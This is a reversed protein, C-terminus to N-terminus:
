GGHYDEEGGGIPLKVTFTSGKGVESQAEITGGHGEVLTKVIALGLGIGKAKTTFLPEFLRELTEQPIGGGTDSFSVSVWEPSASDSKVVLRGGKPMAQIANLIINGFIQGLQDPDALIPGLTGDLQSLVKVNEPISPRSLAERVVDNIDVQRRTPPKPRAFDLLSGIIRESTAVEKELIEMSEKVKPEPKELVMNLFYTANKIAGLPNRLEHGVGGALQGIVALKEQRVLQEQAERLDKTRQEVMEELRESYEKLKEEARKQEAYLKANAIAGAIQSGISEALEVEAETYTNQKVSRMHLVGIVNDKSILPVAILSRFGAQFTPLLRPLRTVVEEIDETQILLNSRTRMVEETLTGALPVVDGSKRGPVDHGAIYATSVTGKEPYIINIAIRDFPIARSVERAFLEYVKDIELSSGIIRGIKAVIEREEALRQLAEEARKRETIDEHTVLKRGDTLTTTRFLIERESGDKCTVTFGRPRIEGVKTGKVDEIWCAVVKKRYEPDPYAKEFWKKGKPVDGATYGFMEVFKPNVYEYTGDKAIFSLGIPASTVLTRFKEESKRLAEETREHETVDKIMGEYGIVNGKDDRRVNGTVLAYIKTGDKSRLQQEMDKVYGQEAMIEQMKRRDEPNFYLQATSEIEMLEERSEYGFLEVTAQNLDIFKGEKTTIYLSDKSGEFLKRYKEESERLERTREQVENELRVGYEELRREYEKRKTIDRAMGVYGITKGKEDQVIQDSISVVIKKGDRKKAEIEYDRVFKEKELLKVLRTRDKPDVYIDRALDLRLVEEKSQYGFLELWSPNVDIFQGEVTSVFIADKVMEFLKMYGERSWQMEEHKKKVQNVRSKGRTM